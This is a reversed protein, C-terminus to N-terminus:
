KKSPSPKKKGVASEKAARYGAKQAEAETMFKGQKTKGYFQGDKNDVIMHFRRKNFKLRLACLMMAGFACIM